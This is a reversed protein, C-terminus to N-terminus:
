GGCSSQRSGPYIPGVQGTLGFQALLKLLNMLHLDDRGSRALRVIDHYPPKNNYHRHPCLSSPLRAESLRVLAM